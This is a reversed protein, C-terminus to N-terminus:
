CLSALHQEAGVDTASVKHRRVSEPSFLSWCILERYLFGKETLTLHTGDDRMLGLEVSADFVSGYPELMTGNLARPIAARPLKHLMLIVSRRASEDADILVGKTAIAAEGSLAMHAELAGRTRKGGGTIYDVTRTYSRAGSGLGLVSVGGFYFQKHLLGGKNPAKFQVSSERVYGEERLRASCMALREYLQPNQILSPLVRRGLPTDSRPGIMYLSATEPGFALLTEISAACSRDTQGELGVILDAAVNAFGAARLAALAANATDAGAAARGALGLERADFSQIGVSIRTVGAAALDPLGAIEALVSDPSAEVSIEEATARWDPFVEDLSSLLEILLPVGIVFPTGGGVFVTRIRRSRLGPALNGLQRRVSRVYARYLADDQTPTTITYLACFSCRYRCFPVHIYVNLDAGGEADRRWVDILNRPAESEVHATRPPYCYVLPLIAGTAVASRLFDGRTKEADALHGAYM